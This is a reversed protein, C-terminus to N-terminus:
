SFSRRRPERVDLGTAPRRRMLPHSSGPQSPRRARTKVQHCFFRSEPDRLAAHRAAAAAAAATDGSEGGPVGGGSPDGPAEERPVRAWTYFLVTTGVNRLSATAQVVEEKGASTEMLLYKPAM